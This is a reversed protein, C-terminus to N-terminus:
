AAVSLSDARLRCGFNGSADLGPARIEQGPPKSPELSPNLEVPLITGARIAGARVIRGDDALVVLRRSKM